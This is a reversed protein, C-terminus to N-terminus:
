CRECNAPPVSTTIRAKGDAACAGLERNACSRASATLTACAAPRRLSRRQCAYPVWHVPPDTRERPEEYPWNTKILAPDRAESRRRTPVIRTTRAIADCRKARMAGHLSQQQRCRAYHPAIRPARSTDVVHRFATAPPVCVVLGLVADYTAGDYLHAKAHAILRPSVMRPCFQEVCRRRPSGCRSM